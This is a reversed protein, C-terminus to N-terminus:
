LGQGGQKARLRELISTVYEVVTSITAGVVVTRLKDAWEAAGQPKDLSWIGSMWVWRRGDRYDVLEWIGAQREFRRARQDYIVPRHIGDPCAETKPTGQVVWIQDTWSYTVIGSSSAPSPAAGASPPPPPRSETRPQQASSQGGATSAWARERDYRARLEPDSLTEYAINLRKAFDENGGRDPHHKAILVRYAKAIVEHDAKPHVQLAEYYDFSEM